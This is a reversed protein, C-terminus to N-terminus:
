ALDLLPTPVVDKPFDGHGGPWPQGTADNKRVVIPHQRVNALANFFASGLRDAFAKGLGERGPISLQQFILGQRGDVNILENVRLYWVENIATHHGPTLIRHLLCGVMTSGFHHDGDNALILLGKPAKLQFYKATQRIQRSAKKLRKVLRQQYPELFEFAAERGGTRAIQELTVRPRGIPIPARGERM